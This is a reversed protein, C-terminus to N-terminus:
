CRAGGELELEVALEDRTIALPGRCAKEVVRELAGELVGPQLEGFNQALWGTPTLGSQQEVWWGRVHEVFAAREPLETPAPARGLLWRALRDTWRPQVKRWATVNVRWGRVTRCAVLEVRIM